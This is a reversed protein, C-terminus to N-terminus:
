SLCPTRYASQPRPSWPLIGIAGFLPQNAKVTPAAVCSVHMVDADVVVTLMIPPVPRGVPVPPPLEPPPPPPPAM